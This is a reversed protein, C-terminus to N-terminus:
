AACGLDEATIVRYQSKAHKSQLIALCLLLAPPREGHPQALPISDVSCYAFVTGNGHRSVSVYMSKEQLLLAADLSTTFNPATRLSKGSFKVVWYNGPRVAYDGERTLQLHARAEGMPRPLDYEVAVAIEADLERSGETAAKIRDILNQM